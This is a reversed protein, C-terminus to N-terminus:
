NQCEKLAENTLRPIFPNFPKHHHDDEDDSSSSSSSRKNNSLEKLKSEYLHRLMHPTRGPFSKAIEYWRGGIEDHLKLLKVEDEFTFKSRDINSQLHNYYRSKCERSTRGKINLAIKDWDEGYEIINDKISKDEEATWKKKHEVPEKSPKPNKNDKESHNKAKNGKKNNM